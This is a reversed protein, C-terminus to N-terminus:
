KRGYYRGKSEKILQDQRSKKIALYTKKTEDDLDTFVGAFLVNWYFKKNKKSEVKNNFDFFGKGGNKILPNRQDYVCIKYEVHVDRIGKDLFDITPTCIISILGRDRLTTFANELDVNGNSMSRKSNMSVAGEDYLCIPNFTDSSLKDWVDKASYIYFDEIKLDLKLRRAVEFCLKIGLTSKASGTQGEIAIATQLNEKYRRIIINVVEDFADSYIGLSWGYMRYNTLKHMKKYGYRRNLIPVGPYKKATMTM